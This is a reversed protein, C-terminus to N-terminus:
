IIISHIEFLPCHCSTFKSLIFITSICCNVRKSRPEHSTLMLVARLQIVDQSRLQRHFFRVGSPRRRQVRFSDDCHVGCLTIVIVVGTTATHTSTSFLIIDPWIMYILVSSLLISNITFKPVSSCVSGHPHFLPLRKCHYLPLMRYM